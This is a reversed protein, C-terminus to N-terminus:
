NNLKKARKLISYEVYGALIESVKTPPPTIFYNCIIAHAIEHALIGLTLKEELIYITNNDPLFISSLKSNNIGLSYIANDFDEKSHFINIRGKYGPIHIDLIDSVELYLNDISEIIISDLNKINNKFIDDLKIFDVNIKKLFEVLDVDGYFNINFYRSKITKAELPFVILLFILFYFVRKM